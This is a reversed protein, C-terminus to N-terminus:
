YRWGRLAMGVALGHLGWGCLRGWGRWGVRARSGLGSGEGDGLGAAGEVEGGEEEEGEEEGGGAGGGCVLHAM